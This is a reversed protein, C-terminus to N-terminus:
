LVMRVVENTYKPTCLEPEIRDNFSAGAPNSLDVILRWRGPQHHKPM